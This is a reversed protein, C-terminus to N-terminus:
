DSSSFVAFCNTFFRHPRHWAPKAKGPFGRATEVIGAAFSQEALANAVDGPADLTILRSNIDDLSFGLHKMSLIQRLKILDKDTYPRRGGASEASPSFLGEKDYYQLTRITVGMKKVVEGVTM